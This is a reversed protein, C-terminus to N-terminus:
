RLVSRLKRDKEEIEKELIQCALWYEACAMSIQLPYLVPEHFKALEYLDEFDELQLDRIARIRAILKKGAFICDMNSPCKLSEKIALEADELLDYRKFIQGTPIKRLSVMQM